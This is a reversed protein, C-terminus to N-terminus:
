LVGLIYSLKVGGRGVLVLIEEVIFADCRQVGVSSSLVFVLIAFPERVVPHVSINYKWEPSKDWPRRGCAIHAIVPQVKTTVLCKRPCESLRVFFNSQIGSPEKPGWHPSLHM